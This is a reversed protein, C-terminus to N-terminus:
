KYAGKMDASLRLGWEGGLKQVFLSQGEQANAPRGALASYSALLAVASTDASMASAAAWVVIWVIRRMCM